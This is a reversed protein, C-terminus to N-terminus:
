RCGKLLYSSPSSFNVPSSKSNDGKSPTTECESFDLIRREMQSHKAPQKQLDNDEQGGEKDNLSANKPLAKPTKNELVEQANAYTAATKESIQKMLGIADYSRNGSSMLYGYDEIAIETAIRPSCLFTANIFWPSKWASPSKISKMFPTDGFISSTEFGGDNKAQKGSTAGVCTVDVSLKEHEKARVCKVRSCPSRQNPVAELRRNSLNKPTRASSGLVTDLGPSNPAIDNMNREILIGSPQEVNDNDNDDDNDTDIDIKKMKSDVQHKLSDQSSNKVTGNERNNEDLNASNNKEEVQKDKVTQGCNEKDDDVSVAISWKQLSTPSIMDAERNENDDFMFDLSSFSKILSSPMDTVLKKDTRKDSLPSLLDRHRKSLISPTGTFTKAASKFLADLNDGGSPSDWLRFPTLCSVPSMLLQRIGLPSFEQQMDPESQALDCSLFPIDLSPFCPPQYCLTGTDEKKSHENLKEYKAYCTVKSNSGYGFSNVPVLKSSDKPTEPPEQKVESDINDVCPSSSTGNSSIVNDPGGSVIQHDEKGLLKNDEAAYVFRSVSASFVPPFSQSSSSGKFNNSCKPCTLQSTSSSERPSPIQIHCSQCLFMNCGSFDVMDVDKIYVRPSFCGDSVAESFLFRCCEDESISMNNPKAPDMSAPRMLTSIGLGETQFPVNVMNCMESNDVCNFQYDGTLANGSQHSCIQEAFQSSCADQCAVEPICIDVDDLSIYYHQPCSAQSLNHDKGLISEEEPKYVERTQLDLNSTLGASDASEQSCESVDKRDTRKPGNGDGVSHMESTLVMQQDPNGALPASQFQALLGSALYSDLKKKVSSHWHNKISNDTRGPLFKTLEAWKNGYIQHARILTLEEEQTWAEKNIGPNLHNHWRERCQKGIRGPLHHAITSWKKPGYKNVLEIIVEDEEKSWPGKVLDPNLVKQWRHLCQVDTRDKFCEAIKKWNKGKFHQVAKRLIEDQEPTWNGKTSRRTPGTTRGHLARNKQAGDIHEESPAVPIKEDGNM